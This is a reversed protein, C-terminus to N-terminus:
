ARLLRGPRAVPVGTLRAALEILARRLPSKPVSEALTQGRSLARDLGSRDYPLTRIAPVGAFRHLAAAIEREPNGPVVAGRVKNVLVIPETGPVAEALDSLGRVLRHIGVPDGAGVAVVVDAAELAALTAGNRRPAATDFSIEEDAELCFGCDVVTLGALTRASELVGLVSEVRLEPWRDPRALGTLVRLTPSVSRALGALEAVTLRGQNHLRAAAALGPSEDVMGLVQAIVGGYPDGDVLLTATGLRAAEDALGVAVTTRGPAGTPGWVAVVKGTGSVPADDAPVAPFVPLAAAPNALGSLGTAMTAVATQLVEAVQAPEADAPVVFRIGLRWCLEHDASGAFGVVAVGAAALRALVDRDLRRLDASLVVARATGSGAVILLEAVDVCRRVVTIGRDSRDLAAVLNAEAAADTVATAIPLSM